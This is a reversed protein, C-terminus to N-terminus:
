QLVIVKILSTEEYERLLENVITLMDKRRSRVVNRETGNSEIRRVLQSEIAEVFIPSRIHFFCVRGFFSFFVRLKRDKERERECM